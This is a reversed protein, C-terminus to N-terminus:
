GLSVDWDRTVEEVTGLALLHPAEYEKRNIEPDRHLNREKKEKQM